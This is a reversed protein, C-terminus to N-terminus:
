RKYRKFHTKKKPKTINLSVQYQGDEPWQDIAVVQPQTLEKAWPHWVLISDPREAQQTFTAHGESNSITFNKWKSIFIYGIMSDHINCGLVVIGAKDFIVPDKPKNAYLKIEFRKPESFSYVHHRINDSNPFSVQRGEEVALVFPLFSKDVQDMIAPQQDIVSIPKTPNVVVANNIAKGHQDVLKVTFDASYSQSVPLILLTTFICLQLTLSCQKIM